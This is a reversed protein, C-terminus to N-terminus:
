ERWSNNEQRDVVHQQDTQKYFLDLALAHSHTFGEREREVRSEKSPHEFCHSMERVYASFHRARNNVIVLNLYHRAVTLLKMKKGIM